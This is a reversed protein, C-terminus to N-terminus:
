ETWTVTLAFGKGAELTIPQTLVDRSFLTEDYFTDFSTNVTNATAIHKVIAYESVLIDSQTNNFGTINLTVTVSMGDDSLQTSRTYSINSLSSTVDSELCYDEATPATIGTGLRLFLNTKSQIANGLNSIATSYSATFGTLASINEGNLKKMKTATHVGSTSNSYTFAATNYFNLFAKYNNLIM